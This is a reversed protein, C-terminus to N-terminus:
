KMIISSVTLLFELPTNGPLKTQGVPRKQINQLSIETQGLDDNGRQISENMMYIIFEKQRKRDEVHDADTNGLSEFIFSKASNPILEM